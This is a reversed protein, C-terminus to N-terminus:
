LASLLFLLSFPVRAKCKSQQILNQNYCLFYHDYSFLIFGKHCCILCCHFKDATNGKNLCNITSNILCLLEPLVFQDGKKRGSLFLKLIQFIGTIVDHHEVIIRKQYGVLNSIDENAMGLFLRLLHQLLCLNTQAFPLEKVGSNVIPTCLETRCSSKYVLYLDWDEKICEVHQNEDKVKVFERIRYM